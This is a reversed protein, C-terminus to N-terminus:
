FWNQAIVCVGGECKLKRQFWHFDNNRCLRDARQISPWPLRGCVRTHPTRGVRHKTHRTVPQEAFCEKIPQVLVRELRARYASHFARHFGADAVFRM